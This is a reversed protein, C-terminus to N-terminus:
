GALGLFVLMARNLRLMTEDDLRGIRRGLRAKPVTTIKDAMLWSPQALGSAETPDVPVRFAQAQTGNSTLLCVTISAIEDFRDDQVIVVSRPKGGYHSAGALTWVEGRKM